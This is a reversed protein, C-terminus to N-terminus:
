DELASDIAAILTVRNRGAAEIERLRRLETPTLEGLRARAQNVTGSALAAVRANADEDPSGAVDTSTTVTADVDGSRDREPLRPAQEPPTWSPTETPTSVAEDDLLSTDAVPGPHEGAPADTLPDTDALTDSPPAPDEDVPTTPVARLPASRIMRDPERRPQESWAREADDRQRARERRLESAAHELEGATRELAKAGKSLLSAFVERVRREMMDM